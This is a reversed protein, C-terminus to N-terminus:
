SCVATHLECLNKSEKEFQFDIFDVLISDISYNKENERKIPLNIRRRRIRVNKYKMTNQQLVVLVMKKWRNERETVTGIFKHIINEKM